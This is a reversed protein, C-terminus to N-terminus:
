LDGLSEPLKNLAPLKKRPVYDQFSPPPAYTQASAEEPPPPPSPPPPAKKKQRRPPAGGLRGAGSGFGEVMVPAWGGGVPPAEPVPAKVAEAKLKENEATLEAIKALIEEQKAVLLGEGRGEHKALTLQVAEMWDHIKNVEASLSTYAKRAEPEGRYVSILSIIMGTLAPLAGLLVAIAGAYEKFAPRNVKDMMTM